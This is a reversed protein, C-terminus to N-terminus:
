SRRTEAATPDKLRSAAEILTAPQAGLEVAAAVADECRRVFAEVDAESPLPTCPAIESSHIMFVWIPVHDRRLSKMTAVMDALSMHTPRLWRHGLRLRGYHGLRSFQRRMSDGATALWSPFWAAGVPIEVPDDPQSSRGFVEPVSSPLRSSRRYDPGDVLRDRTDRWSIGPTVTTDVTIGCNRLSRVSDASLSWRGGRYSQPTVGFARSLEGCTYSLMAEELTQGLQHAMAHVPPKGLEPMAFPWQRTWSHFHAGLECDGRELCRRLVAAAEHCQAVESTTLYVPRAGASTLRQHFASLRRFHEFTLGPRNAWLDDPETDLTFCFQFTMGEALSM